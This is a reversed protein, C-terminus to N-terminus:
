KDQKAPPLRMDDDISSGRETQVVGAHETLVVDNATQAANTVVEVAAQQDDRDDRDGAPAASAAAGLLAGSMFFVALSLKTAM